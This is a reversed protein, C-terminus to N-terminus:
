VSYRRRSTEYLSRIETPTLVNTSLLVEGILGNFYNTSERGIDLDSATKASTDTIAICHWNATITTAVVGDTYLVTSGGAFGNKTLTGTEITLYDTGNLDIPYDNGAVDDPKVWMVVTKIASGQNGIDIFNNTGDFEYGPYKARLTIVTNADKMTGLNGNLSYDFVQRVYAKVSVDDISGDFNTTPNLRLKGTGAATNYFVVGQDVDPSGLPAGGFVVTVSGATRSSISFKIRYIQGVIPATGTSVLGATNGATHVAKGSSTDWGAGVTWGTDGASFDGNIIDESGIVDIMPSDQLTLYLVTDPGTQFYRSPLRLQKM